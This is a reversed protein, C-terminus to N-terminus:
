FYVREREKENGREREREREREGKRTILNEAKREQMQVINLAGM